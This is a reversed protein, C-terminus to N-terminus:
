GATLAGDVNFAAGSAYSARDSSLWCMIEAIDDPKALEGTQGLDGRELVRRLDADVIDDRSV